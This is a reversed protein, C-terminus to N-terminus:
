PTHSPSFFFLSNLFFFFRVGPPLNGVCLTRDAIESQMLGEPIRRLSLISGRLVHPHDDKLEILTNIVKFNVFRVRGELSSELREELTNLATM